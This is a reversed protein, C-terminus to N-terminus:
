NVIIKFSEEIIQSDGLDINFTTKMFVQLTDGVMENDLYFQQRPEYTYRSRTGLLTEAYPCEWCFHKNIQYGAINLPPQIQALDTLTYEMNGVPVPNNYGGGTFWSLVSYTPVTFNISDFAVWYDSDYETMILPVNNVVANVEDLEGRITFYKPGYFEIHWYGNEDQYANPQVLEDIFFRATCDGDVCVGLTIDEKSCSALLFVFGIILLKKM